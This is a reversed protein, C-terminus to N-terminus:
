ELNKWDYGYKFSAHAILDDEECSLIEQIEEVINTSEVTEIDLNLLVSDHNQLIVKNISDYQTLLEFIKQLKIIFFDSATSQIYNNLIAYDKNPHLIRGFYNKIYGDRQYKESLERSFVEVPSLLEQLKELIEEKNQIDLQDITKSLTQGYIIAYNISKAQQRHEDDRWILRSLNLHPDEGRPIDCLQSLLCYEFYDYDFEILVCGKEPIVIDRFKKAMTQLSCDNDKVYIRGTTNDTGNCKQTIYGENVTSYIKQFKNNGERLENLIKTNVRVKLSSLKTEIDYCRNWLSLEKFNLESLRLTHFWNLCISGCYLDFDIHEKFLSKVGELSTYCDLSKLYSPFFIHSGWSLIKHPINNFFDSLPINNFFYYIEKNIYYINNGTTLTVTINTEYLFSYESKIVISKLNHSVEKVEYKEIFPLCLTTVYNRLYTKYDTSEESSFIFYVNEKIKTESLDLNPYLELAKEIGVILVPKSKSCEEVENLEITQFLPYTDNVIYGLTYM